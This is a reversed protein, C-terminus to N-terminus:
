PRIMRWEAILFAYLAIRLGSFLRCLVFVLQPDGSFHFGYSEKCVTAGRGFSLSFLKLKRGFRSTFLHSRASFASRAIKPAYLLLLFGKKRAAVPLV